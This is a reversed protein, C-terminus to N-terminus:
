RCPAACRSSQCVLLAEEAPRASGYRTQCTGICTADAGCAYECEGLLYGQVTEETAALQNACSQGLCTSCASGGGCAASCLVGGCALLDVLDALGSPHAGYCYEDCAYAVCAADCDPGAEPVVGGDACEDLCVRFAHCDPNASCRDRSRCCHNDLCLGCATADTESTVPCAQTLLPDVGGADTAGAGCAAACGPGSRCQAIATEAQAGSSSAGRPCASECAPDADGSSSQPCRELCSLYGACDPDTNCSAIEAGCGTRFCQGCSTKVWLPTTADGPGGDGTSSASGSSCAGLLTLSLVGCAAWLGDRGRM